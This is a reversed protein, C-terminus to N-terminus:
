KVYKLKKNYNDLKEYSYVFRIVMPLYIKM